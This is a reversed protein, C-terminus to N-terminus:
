SQGAATRRRFMSSKLQPLVHTTAPSFLRLITMVSSPRRSGEDMERLVYSSYWASNHSECVARSPARESTGPKEYAVLVAAKVGIHGGAGLRRRRSSGKAM